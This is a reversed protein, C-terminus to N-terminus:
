RALISNMLSSVRAIYVRIPILTILRSGVVISREAYM